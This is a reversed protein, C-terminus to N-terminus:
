GALEPLRVLLADRLRRRKDASDLLPQSLGRAEKASFETLLKWADEVGM